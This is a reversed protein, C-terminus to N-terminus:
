EEIPSLPNADFWAVLDTLAKRAGSVLEERAELDTVAEAHAAQDEALAKQAAELKELAAKADAETKLFAERRSNIDKIIRDFEGPNDMLAKLESVTLKDAGRRLISGPRLIATTM